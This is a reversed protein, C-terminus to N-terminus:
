AVVPLIFHKSHPSTLCLSARMFFTFDFATNQPCLNINSRFEHRGLSNPILDLTRRLYSNLFNRLCIAFHFCCYHFNRIETINSNVIHISFNSICQINFINIDMSQVRYRTSTTNLRANTTCLTHHLFLM